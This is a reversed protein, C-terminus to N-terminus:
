CGLATRWMHEERSRINITTGSRGNVATRGSNAVFQAQVAVIWRRNTGSV